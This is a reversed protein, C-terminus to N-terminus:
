SGGVGILAAIGLLAFLAAVVYRIAKFPIRDAAAKGLLVAPVNAIMMGVTTGMVVALLAHFKAALLVTAVQTKDGMEALFFAVFTIVFVSGHSKEAESGDLKDPTLTWLAIGIFSLGVLWRLLFSRGEATARPPWDSM